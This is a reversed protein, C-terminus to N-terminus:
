VIRGGHWIRSLVLAGAMGLVSLGTMALYALAGHDRYLLGSFWIALALAGGFTLMANLSQATAALRPTVARQIFYMAGLHMAGFTGAHLLQVMLIVALHDSLGLATWRVIGALAGAAFWQWPRLAGFLRTALAFLAVEAAVGLAWFLGIATESYGVARWHLASFAYYMGHGAQVLGGTLLFLVFVRSRLLPWAPLGRGKLPITRRDPRWDPLARVCLWCVGLLVVAGWVVIDTGIRELALGGLSSIAIFAVSGWLRVRGYDIGYRGIGEFM